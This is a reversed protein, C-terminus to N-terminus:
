LEDGGRRRRRSRVWRSCGAVSLDLVRSTGIPYGCVRIVSEGVCERVERSEHQQEVDFCGSHGSTPTSSRGCCWFERMYGSLVSMMAM